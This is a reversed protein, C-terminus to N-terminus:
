SKTSTAEYYGGYKVNRVGNLFMQTINHTLNIVKEIDDYNYYPKFHNNAMQKFFTKYMKDHGKDRKIKIKKVVRGKDLITMKLFDNIIITTDDFRIEYNEQVGRLSNGEESIMINVLSGDSLTIGLVISDRSVKSNLLTIECIEFPLWYIILDLWHCLNGTIRTGQNNWLYWHNRNIKVEKITINIFKPKQSNQLLHKVMNVWDIYRRNFGIEIKAGEEIIKKIDKFQEKNVAVPKEIFIISNKNAEYIAEAIETHTSHYTAIIAVPNIVEKIDDLIDRYDTAYNSFRNTRAIYEALRANYDVVMYKNVYRIQPIVYSRVYDGCGLIILNRNFKNKTNYVKYVNETCDPKLTNIINERDIIDTQEILNILKNRTDTDLELGSDIDYNILEELLSTNKLFLDKVSTLSLKNKNIFILGKHFKFTKLRESYQTGIGIFDFTEKLIERSFSAIIFCRQKNFMVEIKKSITKKITKYLGERFIFYAFKKVVNLYPPKNQIDTYISLYNDPKILLYKKIEAM